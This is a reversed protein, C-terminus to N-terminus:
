LEDDPLMNGVHRKEFFMDRNCIVLLAAVVFLLVTEICKTNQTMNIQEQLFNVAFHVISCAFISRNNGVYVWTFFFGLPMMGVFFNVMYWPSMALINAQYTGDICFLPIHWAAWLFGFIISESFWSHYQAISDEAYGRWGLEEFLATLLLVFLTPVGGLSFSFGGTFGFQSVPEGFLLSIAISAFIVASFIVLGGLINLPQIRFMGCLKEKYDRKLMRSKSFQVFLFSTIAPVLLGLMMLVMAADFSHETKSLAAAAFWFAWTLFLTIVYFQVPRYRYMFVEMNNKSTLM